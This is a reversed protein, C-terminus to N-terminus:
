RGDVFHKLCRAPVRDIRGNAFSECPANANQDRENWGFWIIVGVCLVVLVMAEWKKGM